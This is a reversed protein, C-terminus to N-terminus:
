PLEYNLLTLPRRVFACRALRTAVVAAAASAGAPSLAARDYKFHMAQVYIQMKQCVHVNPNCQKAFTAHKPDLSSKIRQNGFSEAYNQM